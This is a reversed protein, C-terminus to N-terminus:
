SKFTIYNIHYVQLVFINWCEVSCFFNFLVSFTTMALGLILINDLNVVHSLVLYWWGCYHELFYFHLYLSSQLSWITCIKHEIVMSLVLILMVLKFSLIVCVISLGLIQDCLCTIANAILLCVKRYCDIICLVYNITSKEHIPILSNGEGQYCILTEPKWSVKILIHEHM